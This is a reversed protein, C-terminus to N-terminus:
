SSKIIITLGIFYKSRRIIFEITSNDKIVIPRTVAKFSSHISHIDVFTIEYALNQNCSKVTYFV